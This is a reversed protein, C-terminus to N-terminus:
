NMLQAAVKNIVKDTIM